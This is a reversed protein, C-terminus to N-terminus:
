SYDHLLETWRSSALFAVEAELGVLRKWIEVALRQLPPFLQLIWLFSVILHYSGPDQNTSPSSDTLLTTQDPAVVNGM